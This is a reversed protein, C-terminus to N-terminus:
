TPQGVARLRPPLATQQDDSASESAFAEAEFEALVRECAAVANVAEDYGEADFYDRQRVATLWRQFRSLDVDSEEVETFTARGKAREAEIESFFDRTRGVIERYEDSREGNFREITEREERGDNLSVRLTRGHGGERLVRALLRNVMRTTAPREPLLYVSQGLSHAGASRLKRWTFVRLTSSPGPTSVTIMM